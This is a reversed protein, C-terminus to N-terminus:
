VAELIGGAPTIRRVAGRHAELLDRFRDPHVCAALIELSEVIRPGPRNFYANGDALWIRGERGATWRDLPLVEILRPVEEISRALDFGCPKVLVVQPDLAPLAAADLTPAHDGPSTVLPEGGAREILEPMWTGGPMVPDIWEVTLVRPKGPARAARAAIAEMRARMSGVLERGRDARGLAVATREIDTFVDELRSPHLNVVETGPRGLAAVARRVDDFSVACVDCLDQTVIVDPALAALRETDIDYVALADRILDRVSRDIAASTAAPATKPSTLVPLGAVEPPHDCEHSVGVLQDRAGLACVIETASPLLSVTRRPPSEPSPSRRSASERSPPRPSPARRPM